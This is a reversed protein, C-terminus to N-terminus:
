KWEVALAVIVRGEVAKKTLSEVTEEPDISYRGSSPPFYYRFYVVRQESSRIDGASGPNSFLEVFEGSVEPPSTERITRGPPAAEFQVGVWPLHLRWKQRGDAGYEEERDQLLYLQWTTVVRDIPWKDWSCDIAQVVRSKGDSLVMLRVKLEKLGTAKGKWLELGAGDKLPLSQHTDLSLTPKAQERGTDVPTQGSRTSGSLMYGIGVGATLSASILVFGVLL